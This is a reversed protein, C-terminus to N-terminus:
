TDAFPRVSCETAGLRSAIEEASDLQAYGRQLTMKVVTSQRSTWQDYALRLSDYFGAYYAALARMQNREAPTAGRLKRVDAVFDRGIEAWPRFVQAGVDKPEGLDEVAVRADECLAALREVLVPRTPDDNAGSCGAALPILALAVAL